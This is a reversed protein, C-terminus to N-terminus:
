NEGSLGNMDLSADLRCIAVAMRGVSGDCPSEIMFRKTPRAMATPKSTKPEAANACIVGSVGGASSFRIGAGNGGGTRGGTM